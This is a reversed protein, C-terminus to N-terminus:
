AYEARCGWQFSWGSPVPYMAVFRDSMVQSLALHSKHQWSPLALHKGLPVMVGSGMKKQM